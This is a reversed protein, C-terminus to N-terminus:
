LIIPNSKIKHKKLGMVRADAWGTGSHTDFEVQWKDVGTITYPGVTNISIVDGIEFETYNPRKAKDIKENNAKRM